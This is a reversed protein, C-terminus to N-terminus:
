EQGSDEFTAETPPVLGLGMNYNEWAADLLRKAETVLQEYVASDDAFVNFKIEVSNGVMPPCDTGCQATAAIPRMARVGGTVMAVRNGAAPTFVASKATLVVETANKEGVEVYSSRNSSRDINQYKVM